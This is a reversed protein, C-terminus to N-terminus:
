QLIKPVDAAQAVVLNSWVKGLTEALELGAETYYVLNSFPVTLTDEEKVLGMPYCPAKQARINISRDPQPIFSLKTLRKIEFRAPEETSAVGPPDERSDRRFPERLAPTLGEMQFCVEGVGALLGYYWKM